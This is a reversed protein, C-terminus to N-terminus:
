QLKRLVTLTWGDPGTSPRPMVDQWSRKEVLKALPSQNRTDITFGESELYGQVIGLEMDSTCAGKVDVSDTPSVLPKYKIEADQNSGPKYITITTAVRAQKGLLIPVCFQDESGNPRWNECYELNTARTLTGTYTIAGDVFTESGEVIGTMVDSGNRKAGPCSDPGGHAGSIKEFKLTIEYKANQGQPMAGATFRAMAVAGLALVLAAVPRPWAIKHSM